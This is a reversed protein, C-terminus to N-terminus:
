KRKGNSSHLFKKWERSDRCHDLSEEIEDIYMGKEFNEKFEIVEYDNRCEIHNIEEKCHYCWLRKRHFKEKKQGKKRALPTETGCKVCFFRHENTNMRGM